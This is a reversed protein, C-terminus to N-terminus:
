PVYRNLTCGTQTFRIDIPSLKTLSAYDYILVLVFFLLHEKQFLKSSIFKNFVRNDM